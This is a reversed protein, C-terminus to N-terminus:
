RRSGVDVRRETVILPNAATAGDREHRIQELDAPLEQM